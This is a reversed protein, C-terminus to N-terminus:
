GAARLQPATEVLPDILRDATYPPLGCMPLLELDEELERAEVVSVFIDPYATVLRNIAIPLFAVGPMPVTGIHLAGTAGSSVINLEQAASRLENFIATAHAIPCVQGPTPGCWTM